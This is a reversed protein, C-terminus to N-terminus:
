CAMGSATSVPRVIIFIQDRSQYFWSEGKYVCMRNWRSFMYFYDKLILRLGQSGLATCLWIRYNNLSLISFVFVISLACQKANAWINNNINIRPISTIQLSQIKKVNLMQNPKSAKLNINLSQTKM